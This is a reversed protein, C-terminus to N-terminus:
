NKEPAKPAYYGQRTEVYLGPRTVKVTVRRYKGDRKTNTPYYGISYQSTLEAAIADFAPGLDDMTLADFVRGGTYDALESLYQRGGM